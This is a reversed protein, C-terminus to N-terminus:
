SNWSLDMGHKSFLLAINDLEDKMSLLELRSKTSHSFPNIDLSPQDNKNTDTSSKNRRM